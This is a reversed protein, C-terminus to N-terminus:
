TYTEILCFCFIIGLDSSSKLIDLVENDTGTPRIRRCTHQGILEEARKDLGKNDKLLGKIISRYLDKKEPNKFSLDFLVLISRELLKEDVAKMEYIKNTAQFIDTQLKLVEALVIVSPSIFVAPEKDSSNEQVMEMKLVLREATELAGLEVLQKVTRRCISSMFQRNAPLHHLVRHAEDPATRCLEVLAQLLVQDGPQHQELLRELREGDGHSAAGVVFAHPVSKGYFINRRNLLTM